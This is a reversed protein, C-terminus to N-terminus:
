NSLYSNENLDDCKPLTWCMKSSRVKPALILLLSADMTLFAITDRAQMSIANGANACVVVLRAVVVSVVTSPTVTVAGGMMEDTLEQYATMMAQGEDPSLERREGYITLAYQM